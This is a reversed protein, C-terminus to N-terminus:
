VFAELGYKKVYEFFLTGYGPTFRGEPKAWTSGWSNRFIFAGGGPFAPNLEYGVVCIAHGGDSSSGPFPMPIEGTDSVTPYDWSPFTMVSRVVPRKGDFQEQIREPIKAALKKATPWRSKKAEVEAGDSPRGQGEDNAIPLPNYKWTRALCAVRIKLVERATRVFTGEDKELGDDQECAWYVFQVL